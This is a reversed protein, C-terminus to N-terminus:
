VLIGFVPTNRLGKKSAFACKLNTILIPIDIWSTHNSVYTSLYKPLTTTKKYDTGLYTSYDFDIKKKYTRMGGFFLILM